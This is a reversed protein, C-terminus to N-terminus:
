HGLHNDKVFLDFMQFVQFALSVLLAPNESKISPELLAETIASVTAQMNSPAQLLLELSLLLLNNQSNM